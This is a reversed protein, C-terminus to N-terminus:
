TKEGASIIEQIRNNKKNKEINSTVTPGKDLTNSVELKIIKSM